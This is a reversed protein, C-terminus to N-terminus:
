HKTQLNVKTSAAVFINVEFDYRNYLVRYKYM